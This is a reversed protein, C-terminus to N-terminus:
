EKEALALAERATLSADWMAQHEPTGGSVEQVQDAADALVKLAEKMVEHANVAQIIFAANPAIGEGINIIWATISDDASVLALNSPNNPLPVLRYPSPAYKPTHKATTM